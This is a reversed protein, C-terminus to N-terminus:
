ITEDKKQRRRKQNKKKKPTVITALKLKKLGSNVRHRVGVSKIDEFSLLQKKLKRLSM